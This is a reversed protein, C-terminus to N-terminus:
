IILRGVVSVSACIFAGWIMDVLTVIFPWQNVTALNTLDYAAYTVFGFLAGYGIIKLIGSNRGPIIVFVLIGLLFILYFVIAAWWHVKDSLIYGLHSQYFDKAIVGLWVLDLCIFTLMMALYSYLFKM